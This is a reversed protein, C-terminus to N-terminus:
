VFPYAFLILYANSVKKTEVIKFGVTLYLKVAPVWSLYTDLIFKASKEKLLSKFLLKGYGKRREKPDIIVTAIQRYSKYTDSINYMKILHKTIPFHRLIGIVKKKVVLICYVTDAGTEKILQEITIPKTRYESVLKIIQSHYKELKSIDGQIFKAM